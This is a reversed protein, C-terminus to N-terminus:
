FGLYNRDTLSRCGDQNVYVSLTDDTGDQSLTSVVLDPRGDNNLDAITVWGPQAGGTSIMERTTFRGDGANLMVDAGGFMGVLVLDPRGDGNFDGLAIEHPSEPTPCYGTVQSWSGNRQNLLVGITTPLHPKENITAIDPWGDGDFDGVAMSGPTGDTASDIKPRFTGDGNGLLVSIAEDGGSGVVLDLNGDRDMDAVGLAYPETGTAFDTAAGFTGDGNNLLVSVTNSTNNSVAMDLAGDGNFDGVAVARTGNGEPYDVAPAFTGDGNGLFVGIGNSYDPGAMDLKGDGNFDGLAFGMYYPGNLAAAFSGDGNNLLTSGPSLLDPKGDGNVDGASLSSSGYSRGAVYYEVAPGFTGNGNGLFVGVQFSQSAIGIDLKGDGNFDGTAVALAEHGPSVLLPPGGFSM